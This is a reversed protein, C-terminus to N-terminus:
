PGRGQDVSECFLDQDAKGIPGIGDHLFGRLEEKVVQNLVTRAM